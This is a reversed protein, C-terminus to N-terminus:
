VDAARFLGRFEPGDYYRVKAAIAPAAGEPTKGSCGALLAIALAAALAAPTKM